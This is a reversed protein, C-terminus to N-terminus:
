ILSISYDLESYNNCYLSICFTDTKDYCDLIMVGDEYRIESTSFLMFYIDNKNADVFSKFDDITKFESSKTQEDLYEYARDIDYLLLTKINNFRYEAFDNATTSISSYKNYNRNEVSKPIEFNIEEGEKLNNFDIGALYDNLYVEFSNTANDLTLIMNFDIGNYTRTDRIVGKVFYTTIIGFTNPDDQYNSLSYIDYLEINFNEIYEINSTISDQTIGLANIYEPSLMNYAAEKYFNDTNDPNSIGIYFLYFKQVCNKVLNLTYYGGIKQLKNNQSDIIEIDAERLETDTPGEEKYDDNKNFINLIIVIGIILCIIILIFIIKKNRYM